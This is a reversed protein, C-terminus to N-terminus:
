MSIIRTLVQQMLYITHAHDPAELLFEDSIFEDWVLSRFLV